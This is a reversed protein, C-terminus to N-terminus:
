RKRGEFPPHLPSIQRSKLFVALFRSVRWEVKQFLSLFRDLFIAFVRRGLSGLLDGYGDKQTLKELRMNEVHDRRRFGVFVCLKQMKIGDVGILWFFFLFFFM